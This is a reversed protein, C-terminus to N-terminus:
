CEKEGKKSRKKKGNEIIKKAQTYTIGFVFAFWHIKEEEMDM